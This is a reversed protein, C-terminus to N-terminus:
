AALEDITTAEVLVLDALLFSLGNGLYKEGAVCSAQAVQGVRLTFILLIVSVTNSLSHMSRTMQPMSSFIGSSTLFNDSPLGNSSIKLIM